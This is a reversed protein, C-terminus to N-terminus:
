MGLQWVLFSLGDATDEIQKEVPMGGSHGTETDYKLLIPADGGTKAQVLAAMKRAHLPAVRTDADGTIFLTAPYEVGEKVNHYPSYEYIYKFQDPDDASGYESVWFRAVLFKHFRVM